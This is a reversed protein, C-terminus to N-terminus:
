IKTGPRRHFETKLSFSSIKEVHSSLSEPFSIRCSLSKLYRCLNGNEIESHYNPTPRLDTKLDIWGDLEKQSLEYSFDAVKLKLIGTDKEASSLVTAKAEPASLFLVMGALLIIKLM